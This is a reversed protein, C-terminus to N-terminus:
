FSYEIVVATVTPGVGVSAADYYTWTAEDWVLDVFTLGDAPDFGRDDAPTVVPTEPPIMQLRKILEAVTM